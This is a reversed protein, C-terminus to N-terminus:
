FCDLNTKSGISGSHNGETSRLACLGLAHRRRQPEQLDALVPKNIIVMGIDALIEHRTAVGGTLAAIEEDSVGFPIGYGKEFILQHRLTEPIRSLHAPHIPFRREDQKKSTGIVGVMLSNM